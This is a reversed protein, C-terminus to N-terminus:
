RISPSAPKRPWCMCRRGAWITKRRLSLEYHIYDDDDIDDDHNLHVDDYDPGDFNNHGDDYDPGDYDYTHGVYDDKYSM